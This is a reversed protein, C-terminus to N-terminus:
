TKADELTEKFTKGSNYDVFGKDIWDKFTTLVAPELTVVDTPHDHSNAMLKINYGDYSGYLGDGLYMQTQM